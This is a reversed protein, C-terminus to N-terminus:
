QSKKKPTKKTNQENTRVRCPSPKLFLVHSLQKLTPPFSVFCHPTLVVSPSGCKQPTTAHREGGSNAEKNAEKLETSGEKERIDDLAQLSQSTISRWM